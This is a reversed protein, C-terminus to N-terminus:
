ISYLKGFLSIVSFLGFAVLIVSVFSVIWISWQSTEILERLHQVRIKKVANIFLARTDSLSSWPVGRASSQRNVQVMYRFIVVLGLGFTAIGVVLFLFLFFYQTGSMAFPNSLGNAGRSFSLAELGYCLVSVWFGTILLRAQLTSMM